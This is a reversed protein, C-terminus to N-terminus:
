TRHSSNLRTSKRDLRELARLAGTEVTRLAEAYRAGQSWEDADHILLLDDCIAEPPHIQFYRHSMQSFHAHVEDDEIRGRLIPWTEEMLRERLKEEERAFQTDGTLIPMAKRHLQWLLSDKFGNWLKDSTALADAFTHLTLLALSEQTQVTKSFHRIVAPDDLDIEGADFQAKEGASWEAYFLSPDGAIGRKRLSGLKSSREGVGETSTYWLQPNPRASLTPLLARM